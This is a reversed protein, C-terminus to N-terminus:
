IYGGKAPPLEKYVEKSIIIGIIFRVVEGLKDAKQDPNTIKDEWYLRKQITETEVFFDFTPFPAREGIVDGTFKVNFTDPYNFFDIQQMKQYISDLEESELHLSTTISPDLIMDKEYTCDFTNLINKAGVGYKFIMNINNMESKCKRNDSESTNDTELSNFSKKCFPFLFITSIIFLIIIKKM